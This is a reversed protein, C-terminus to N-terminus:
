GVIQYEMDDQWSRDDARHRIVAGRIPREGKRKWTVDIRMTGNAGPTVGMAVMRIKPRIDGDAPDCQFLRPTIDISQDESPNCIIWDILHWAPAGNRTGDLLVTWRWRDGDPETTTDDAPQANSQVWFTARAHQGDPTAFVREFQTTAFILADGAPQVARAILEDQRRQEDSRTM